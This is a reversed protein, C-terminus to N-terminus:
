YEFIFRVMLCSLCYMFRIDFVIDFDCACVFWVGVCCHLCFVCSLVICVCVVCFTLVSVSVYYMSLGARLCVCVCLMLVCLSCLVIRFLFVVVGGVVLSCCVLVYVCM